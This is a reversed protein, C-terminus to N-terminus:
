SYCLKRLRINTSRFNPTSKKLFQNYKSRLLSHYETFNGGDEEWIKCNERKMSHLM